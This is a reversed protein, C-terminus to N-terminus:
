KTMNTATCPRLVLRLVDLGPAAPSELHQLLRMDADDAEQEDATRLPLATELEREADSVRGLGALAVARYKAKTFPTLLAGPSSIAAAFHGRAADQDAPWAIAGLLVRAGLVDDPRWRVVQELEPIAEEVRGIAFLLNGKNFHMSANDPALAIAQDYAGLAANHREARELPRPTSPTGGRSTPSPRSWISTRRCGLAQAALDPQELALQIRTMLLAGPGRDQARALSAWALAAGPDNGDLTENARQFPDPNGTAVSRYGDSRNEGLLVLGLHLWLRSDGPDARCADGLLAATVPDSLQRLYQAHYTASAQWDPACGLWGRIVAATREADLEARLQGYAATVGDHRAAALLKVHLALAKNDPDAEALAGLATSGDESVLDGHDALFDESDQWSRARVWAAGTSALPHGAARVAADLVVDEAVAALDFAGGTARDFSQAADALQSGAGEPSRGARAKALRRIVAFGARAVGLASVQDEPLQEADREGEGAAPIATCLYEDADGTLLMQRATGMAITM